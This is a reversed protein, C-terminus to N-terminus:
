RGTGATSGVSGAAPTSAVSAEDAGVCRARGAPAGRRDGSSAEAHGAGREVLTVELRGAPLEIVRPGPPRSAPRRTARRGQVQASPRGASAVGYKEATAPRLQGALQRRPQRQGPRNSCSAASPVTSPRPRRGVVGTAARPQVREVRDHRRVSASSRWRWSRTTASTLRSPRGRPHWPPAGARGWTTSRRRRRGSAATCPAHQAPPPRSAPRSRGRRPESTSSPM